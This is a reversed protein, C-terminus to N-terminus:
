HGFDRIHNLAPTVADDMGRSTTIKRVGQLAKSSRSVYKEARENHNGRRMASRARDYDDGVHKATSDARNAATPLVSGGRLTKNVNHGIARAGGKIAGMVGGAQYGSKIAGGVNLENLLDNPHVGLQEAIAIIVNELDSIYEAEESMPKPRSQNEIKVRANAKSDNQAHRILAAQEAGTPKRNQAYARDAVVAEQKGASNIEESLEAILAKAKALEIQLNNRENILNRQVFDM